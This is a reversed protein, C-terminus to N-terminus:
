VLRRKYWELKKELDTKKRKISITRPKKPMVVQYKKDM